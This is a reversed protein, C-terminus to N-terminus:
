SSTSDAGPTNGKDKKKNNVIIYAVVAIIVVILAILPITIM